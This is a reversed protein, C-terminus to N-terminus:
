CPELGVVAMLQKLVANYGQTVTPETILLFHYDFFGQMKHAVQRLMVHLGKLLKFLILDYMPDVLTQSSM